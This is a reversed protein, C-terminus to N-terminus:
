IFICPFSIHLELLVNCVKQCLEQVKEQLSQIEERLSNEIREFEAIRSISLKTEGERQELSSVLEVNREEFTSATKRAGDLEATARVKEESAEKLQSLIELQLQQMENKETDRAKVETELQNREVRLQGLAIDKAQLSENAEMLHNKAAEFEANQNPNLSNTLHVYIRKALKCTRLLSQIMLLSLIVKTRLATVEEELSALAQTQEDMKKRAEAGKDVSDQIYDLLANKESELQAKEESLVTVAQSAEHAKFRGLETSLRQLEARDSQLMNWM